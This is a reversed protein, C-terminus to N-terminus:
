LYCGIHEFDVYVVWVSRNFDPIVRNFIVITFKVMTREIFRRFGGLYNCSGQIYSVVRWINKLALLSRKFADFSINVSFLWHRSM